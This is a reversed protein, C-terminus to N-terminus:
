KWLKCAPPQIKYWNQDKFDCIWAPDFHICERGLCNKGAIPCFKSMMKEDKQRAEKKLRQMIEEHSEVYKEEDASKPKSFFKM